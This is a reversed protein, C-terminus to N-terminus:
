REPKVFVSFITGYLRSDLNVQGDDATAYYTGGERILGPLFLRADLDTYNFGVGDGATSRAATSAENQTANV